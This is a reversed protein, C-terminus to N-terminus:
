GIFGRLSIIVLAIVGTYILKGANMRLEGKLIEYTFFLVVIKTAIFGMRWHRINEDPLNPLVLAIFLILFDMPTTKFGHRRTFKLTLLVFLILAGFSYSYAKLLFTDRLYYVSTESLYVLFPIMLFIAIEIIISRRNNKFRWIILNATLLLLSFISFYVPIQKPLFCMIILLSMFGIEVAKFSIKIIVHEERLKRFPGKIVKDIVPYRKMRWGRDNAVFIILIIVVAFLLFSVLLFRDSEYRFIFAYCVLIAHIIYIIIVSESHYFGLNMLKHHLHNTDAKFPSGGKLMRQVIVSMTDIIPLGIILLSLIPSIHPSRRTVALTLTVAVFGLLQSGADGMFVTAPHTNYRLLGFIAGMMALAMVEFAQFRVLYALYGIFLFTLLTIGGALGDLGDSLNIANTVAVIALLTLPISIWNPLIYDGPVLGGLSQIKLGGYLIVILAAIIQGIFKSKFGINKKDDILGFIVLVGSGLLVAIVFQNMPAWLIIPLFAGLVMAIGGVRPIPDCHIKRSNPMDVLKIKCALNILIPMVIITVIASLLFTSLLIM